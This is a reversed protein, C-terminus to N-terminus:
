ADPKSRLLSFAFGAVLLAGGVLVAWLTWRKWDPKEVRPQLAANGALAQRTGLTASAPQWDKGREIRLADVLQTLPAPQRQARASGALLAYPARGEALFVVVEPRYGLRLTPAAGEFPERALLRWHRHRRTDFLAQPPSQSAKGGSDIRYAVWPAAAPQWPTQADDRSQLTWGRTSNGPMAIDAAEVPFRGDLTYDFSVGERTDVRRGQLDEWQRRLAPAQGVLEASIGTVALATPQRAQPLLRLYRAQVAPLVIRDEVVRQDGNRLQVLRADTEVERWQRLDDSASVRYGRDFPAADSWAVRLAAMPKRLQSADIVFGSDEAGATGDGAGGVEAGGVDVRRLVGNADIESIARIDLDSIDLGPSSADAPLPFWPLVLTKGAQALPAEHAFIETAVPTGAADVVVLDQLRPSQLQRYVSRDLVVRYAGGDDRQLALPWQSAYDDGTAAFATALPLALLWALKKM